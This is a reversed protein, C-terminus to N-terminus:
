PTWAWASGSLEAERDWSVGGFAILTGDAWVAATGHEPAGAPWPIPTWVETRDDYVHGWTAIRVGDSANLWWGAYEGQVPQPAPPVEAWTGTAPDLAGGTPICRGYGNVQGGDLCEGYPSVLREGTWHWGGWGGLIEAQELRTWSSGDWVEALLLDPVTGDSVAASDTGLVVVGEPTAAVAQADLRPRHPSSPLTSWARAVPDLVLVRGDGTITHVEDDLVSLGTLEDFAGVPEVPPPPLESWRDAQPDYAYWREDWALVVLGGAVATRAYYPIPVPAAAVTRWGGTAPDYAAGDRATTPPRACDANPPCLHDLEGGLFLAERGTWVAVASARPTLPPAALPTWSGAPAPAPAPQRGSEEDRLLVAGTVAVLVVAAAAALAVSWRRHRREQGGRAIAQRPDGPPVDLGDLREALTTRLMEELTM